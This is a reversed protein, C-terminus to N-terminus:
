NKFCRISFGHARNISNQPYVNSWYFNMSYSFTSIMPSSSWYLGSAGGQGYLSADSHNRAGAPPLKLDNQFNPFSADWTFFFSIGLWWTFSQWKSSIWAKILWDWELTSPVHYWYDCPWRRDINTWTWNSTLTDGAWWWLNDNAPLSWDSFWKIFTWSSYPNEPWNWTTNVQTTWIDTLTWTTEFWHNNWWQYYYWYTATDNNDWNFVKTAWVNKDAIIYGCWNWDRMYINGEWINYTVWAEWPLNLAWNQCIIPLNWEDDILLGSGDDFLTIFDNSKIQRYNWVIFYDWDRENIARLQIFEFGVEEWNENIYTWRSLAIKYKDDDRTTPTAFNLENERLAWFNITWISVEQDRWGITVLWTSTVNVLDDINVEYEVDIRRFL